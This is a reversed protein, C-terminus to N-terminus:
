EVVRFAPRLLPEISALDLVLTTPGVAYPAIEYPDYQFELGAATLAFDAPLSFRDGDFWYGAEAFGGDPPIQETQRFRQEALATLADIAGPELLDDLALRRGSRRDFCLTDDRRNPHAGGTYASESLVVNLLMPPGSRPIATRRVFWRQSSDPFEAKIARYRENWRDVLEAPDAPPADEVLPARVFATIETNVAESLGGGTVPDLRAYDFRFWTCAEEGSPGCGGLTEDLTVIEYAVAPELMPWGEYGCGTYRRGDIEVEARHGSWAGSMGDACREAVLEFRLSHPPLALRTAWVRTAGQEIAPEFPFELSAGIQSFVIGGEAVVVSWSPENGTGRALFGRVDEECRRGERVARVLEEVRLVGTAGLVGRLEVFLPRYPDSALAEIALEIEGATGDEVAVGRDTGCPVFSRRGDELLLKGRFREPLREGGPSGPDCGISPLALAAVLAGRLVTRRM